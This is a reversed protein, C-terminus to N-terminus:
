NSGGVNQIDDFIVTDISKTNSETIIDETRFQIIELEPIEYIQKM